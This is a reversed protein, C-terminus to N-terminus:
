APSKARTFAVAENWLSEHQMEMRELSHVGEPKRGGEGKLGDPVAAQQDVSLGDAKPQMPAMSEVLVTPTGGFSRHQPNDGPKEVSTHFREFWVSSPCLEVTDRGSVRVGLSSRSLSRVLLVRSCRVISSSHEACVTSNFFVDVRRESCQDGVERR